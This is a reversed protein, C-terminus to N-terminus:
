INMAREEYCENCLTCEVMEDDIEYAFPCTTEHVSEKYKGCDDCQM